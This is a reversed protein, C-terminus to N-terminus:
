PSFWVKLGVTAALALGVVVLVFEPVTCYPYDSNGQSLYVKRGGETFLRYHAVMCLPHFALVVAAIALSVRASKAFQNAALPEVFCFWVVNLMSVVNVVDPVPFWTRRGADGVPIERNIRWGFTAFQLGLIVSSLSNINLYAPQASM